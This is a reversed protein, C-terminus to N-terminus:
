RRTGVISRTVVRYGGHPSPVAVQEHLGDRGLSLAAQLWAEVSQETRSPTDDPASAPPSAEQPRDTM